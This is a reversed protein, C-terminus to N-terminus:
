GGPGASTSSAEADPRTWRRVLAVVLGVGGLVALAPLIWLLLNMGEPEPEMLIWEGYREVFYARIEEASEGRELRRRIQRKMDRALESSSDEISLNLCVPCRLSSAIQRVREDLSDQEATQTAPADRQSPSFGTRVPAALAAPAFFVATVALLGVVGTRRVGSM